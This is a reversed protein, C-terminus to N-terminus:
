LSIRYNCMKMYDRPILGTVKRFVQSFYKVDGYGVANSVEYIKWQGDKLMEKAVLIRYDTLCENFTKGVENKFLHMLYSPSIYLDRAVMEITINEKFHKRIYQMADHIERRYDGTIQDSFRIVSNIGPIIKLGAAKEAERSAIYLGKIGEHTDSVGISLTQGTKESYQRSMEVCQRYLKDETEECTKQIQVLVLWDENDTEVLVGLWASSLLLFSAIMDPLENSSPANQLKNPNAMDDQKIHVAIHKGHGIPLDFFKIKDTIEAEDTLRGSVIDRIFQKKINSLENRLRSYYQKTSRSEIIQRSVKTVVEILQTNDIPKLLYALAGFHMAEQIYQFEAYGSLVVFESTIGRSKAEAMMELGTMVPMCIDTLIIDPNLSQALELGQRGNIANGIISINLEDWNITEKIGTHVLYEDDVILMTLM